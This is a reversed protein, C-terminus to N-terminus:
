DMEYVSVYGHTLWEFMKEDRVYEPELNLVGKYFGKLSTLNGSIALSTRTRKMDKLRDGLLQMSGSTSRRTDQCGVHDADYVCAFLFYLTQDVPHLYVLSGIMGRYRTLDVKNGHPDADLKSKEVMPTDVPYSTEMGYKKIIELAYKSQSLFIGRPSQSIQLGLLFSMKGMMSIKFKSLMIESFTECLAPNTSAFIIDDVYIQVLLIDKDEKQTFLTPDVAGGLEDLKVKFIWKLTIIMVRDPHPILEWVELCKFKNLEEQMAEISCAEKLAEIDNDLPHYKTWKSLHEPPQNVSYVNTPIVDRSSSEKSNLEPILVGFFPDNNPSPTDQDVITSSPSGILDAPVLAVVAPVLSAVITRAAEVLTQNRREVIENQQPTRAASTQHSIRVDEYYAKLTKPLGKSVEIEVLTQIIDLQESKLNSLPLWFAQETSMQMQPVFHKGFDILVAKASSIDHYDSAYADLDDTQFAVNHPITTHIAQGDPIRPDALFALQEEDLVQNHTRQSLMLKYMVTSVKVNVTKVIQVVSVVQIQELLRLEAADDLLMLKYQCCYTFRLLELSVESEEEVKLRVNNLLYVKYTSIKEVPVKLALPTAETYVDDEDNPVIKLHKKLEEVEEDLLVKVLKNMTKFNVHGLRRHWLNSENLTAKAFLCTLDGSPVINKLDVNYMNNERPVRLLVQNKNPLKFEPSLITCETDTFLVSNKKDCMQSVSFLNFKLEKVFYVDDFDLKGTRIKGKGSIKGGKPNGGFAVYRSNFGKAATVKPPFTSAKPSPIHTINRRPPSHPKTVITKAQRPKTVHPKPIATTVLRAATIPVLKSKTLVATPVVHRQPNLLTMRTHHQQNERQAHNRAPTQAMKFSSANQPIEAEYDDESESIWDKIIPASPRHTHSLDKNSKTSSFEVNFATHVTENVNPSDHFVLDHKPPIFTGIYPPPVDHYGDGSHYRDYKPSVPLSEDTESAFMEDYDFMSSTFVQTNYGLGIKDNTQSALLQSLNKSSTQFKELKLKLDDREQEAKKFKQRLVVLANDRLQVKLKLLKIDEEFVSENQQYVLLRAEVYKSGTKYFIVDFQSKQFDDTLKDYHSQLTAYAKTCVKSCYVVENDFSSSSSSTFAMLAYNTPEEEAQFSWDYNGVGDCHFVLVNSTSSEVLFNRRQPEPAVNRRTDKPSRCERAFHGKRHCNYCEVKSMDFGISTPGNARLNRQEATTPAVPQVVDEIVRTPAPSDGNLIVELLLYDTMLFYQEIRMKWLNFENPNLIPLKAASVVQPSLSEISVSFLHKHTSFSSEEQAFNELHSQYWKHTRQNWCIKERIFLLKYMVNSVKVSVTKVIQVVSVVQVQLVINIAQVDYDDQLKEQKTLKIYKKYSNSWKEEIALYVFPGSEISELMIRGCKKGKIYLLMRSKWSNYMTKDLMRPRNEVGVVIM